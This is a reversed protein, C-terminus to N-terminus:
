LPRCVMTLHPSALFLTAVRTQESRWDHCERHLSVEAPDDDTIIIIHDGFSEHVHRVSAQKPQRIAFPQAHMPLKKKRKIKESPICTATPQSNDDLYVGHRPADHTKEEELESSSASAQRSVYM